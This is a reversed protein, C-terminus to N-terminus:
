RGEPLVGPGAAEEARGLLHRKRSTRIWWVLLVAVAGISLVIGVVSTATSRVSVEGGALKLLGDPSHLAVDMRFVGSARTRVRVYVVKTYRPPLTIRASWQTQGNDFLLKDSSLTLSGTVAYPANSLVTVPVKGSSATLTISQDGEVSLLGLQADVATGANALVASQQAPRLTESEGALVLDGLQQGLVQDGPAAAAFANVRQRQTRVETLPLGTASPPLLHCGVHCTAPTPFLSFLQDITVAEVMPNASLSGLLAAVFAPSASWSTPPVAVVARPSAGNPREYYLQALEAVLQHAGLVPDAPQATFRSALDPDSAMVRVTPGRGGPLSFPQTTSGTAPTSSLESSPLVLEGYGDAVLAAVTAGDLADNTVWAGLGAAPDPVPRGTAAAVAENGRAIQLSLETPLAGGILTAADVPTFPASTLEHVSPTAALEALQTLATEDTPDDLLGVTQGSVQLTVPVTGHQALAGVTGALGALAAPAPTEIAAGPHVVLAATSPARAAGVTTQVPLVVAVRLRQTDAGAETYVLHTVFSGLM